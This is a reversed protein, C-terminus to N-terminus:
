AAVIITSNIRYISLLFYIIVMNYIYIRNLIYNNSDKLIILLDSYRKDLIAKAM